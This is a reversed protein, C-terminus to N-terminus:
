WRFNKVRKHYEDWFEAVLRRGQDTLEYVGFRVRVLLGADQVLRLYAFTNRIVMGYREFSVRRIEGERGIRDCLLIFRVHARTVNYGMDNAAVRMTQWFAIGHILYEQM